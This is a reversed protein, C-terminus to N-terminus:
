RPKKQVTAEVHITKVRAWQAPMLKRSARACPDRLENHTDEDLDLRERACTLVAFGEADQFTVTLGLLVEDKMHSTCVLVAGPSLPQDAPWSLIAEPDSPAGQVLVERLTVGGVSLDLPAIGSRPMPVVAEGRSVWVIPPTGAMAAPALAALAAVLGWRRAAGGSGRGGAASM